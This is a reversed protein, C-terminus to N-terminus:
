SAKLVECNAHCRQNATKPFSESLVPAALLHHFRGQLHFFQDNVLNARIQLQLILVQSGKYGLPTIETEQFCLPAQFLVCAAM